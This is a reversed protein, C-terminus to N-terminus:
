GGMEGSQDKAIFGWKEKNYDSNLWSRKGITITKVGTVIIRFLNKRATHVFSLVINEKFIASSPGCLIQKPQENVKGQFVLFSSILKQYAQGLPIKVDDPVFEGFTSCDTMQSHCQQFESNLNKSIHFILHHFSRLSWGYNEVLKDSYKLSLSTHYVSYHGCLSGSYHGELSTGWVQSYTVKYSLFPSQM